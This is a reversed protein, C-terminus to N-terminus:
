VVLMSGWLIMSLVAIVLGMALLAIIPALCGWRKEGAPLPDSLLAAVLGVLPTFLLSIVFTWGFGLRRSSGVLGVLACLLSGSLAGFIIVGLTIM